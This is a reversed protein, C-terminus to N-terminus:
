LRGGKQSKILDERYSIIVGEIGFGKLISVILHFENFM